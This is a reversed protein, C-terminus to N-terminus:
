WYCASGDREVDSCPMGNVKVEINARSCRFFQAMAAAMACRVVVDFYLM